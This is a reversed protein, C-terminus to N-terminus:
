GTSRMARPCAEAQWGEHERLESTCTVDFSLFHDAARSAAERRSQVTFPDRLAALDIQRHKRELNEACQPHVIARRDRLKSGDGACIAVRQFYTEAFQNRIPPHPLM